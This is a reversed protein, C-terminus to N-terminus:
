EWNVYMTKKRLYSDFGYKGDEGGIGSQGWGTHFGQFQEGASRNIYLEGFDLTSSLQMIRKFNQTYVYASLGYVTDNAHSLAEEFSGVRMMPVVPGFIENQVLSNQNDSVELVTPAYWHGKEYQSGDPRGGALLEIAGEAKAKQVM